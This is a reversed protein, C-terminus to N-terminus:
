HVNYKGEWPLPDDPHLSNWRKIISDRALEMKQRAPGNDTHILIEPPKYNALEVQEEIWLLVSYGTGREDDGLDHDLSIVEVNGKKLLEKVEDPWYARAWGEPTPRCDDLFIKKM